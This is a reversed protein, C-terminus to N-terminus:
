FRCIVEVSGNIGTIECTGYNWMQMSYPYDFIENKDELIVAYDTLRNLDLKTVLWEKDAFVAAEYGAESLKDLLKKVIQTREDRNLAEDRGISDEKYSLRIAIPYQVTFGYLEHIINEAEEVAEETSIAHSEMYVGFPIDNLTAEECYETFYDDLKFQGTSNGSDGVHIMLFDVDSKKVKSFDIYKYAESIMIGKESIDKGAKLYQVAGDVINIDSVRISNVPILASILQWSVTGDRLVVKTHLGDTAEIPEQENTPTKVKPPEPAKSVWPTPIDTSRDLEAVSPVKSVAKTTDVFLKDRNLILVTGLLLVVFLFMMCTILIKFNRGSMGKM